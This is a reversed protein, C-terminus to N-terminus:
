YLHKHYALGLLTTTSDEQIQPRVNPSTCPNMSATLEQPKHISLVYKSSWPGPHKACTSWFPLCPDSALAVPLNGVGKTQEPCMHAGGWTGHSCFVGLYLRCNLAPLRQFLNATPRTRPDLKDSLMELTKLPKMELPICCNIPERLGANRM